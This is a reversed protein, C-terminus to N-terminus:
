TSPAHEGPPQPRPQHGPGPDPPEVPFTARVRTGCGPPSIVDLRGDLAEVRDALGRLGSGRAPDAGGIGDDAIELAARDSERAVRVTARSAGAYKVVNTLAEAAVYYAAVEVTEPLRAGARELAVTVPLPTRAALAEIAAGLGRASLLAPHIGHAIDRLETIAQGLQAQAYALAERGAAPDRAARTDALRLELALAVLRQQVGDHLDRELLRRAEAQAEVIRARSARLEELRAQLAAELLENEVALRAAVLVMDIPGPERVASACAFGLDATPGVMWSAGHGSPRTRQRQGEPRHRALARNFAVEDAAFPPMPSPETSVVVISDLRQAFPFPRHHM